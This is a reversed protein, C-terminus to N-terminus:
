SNICSVSALIKRDSRGCSRSGSKRVLTLDKQSSSPSSKSAQFVGRSCKAGTRPGFAPM